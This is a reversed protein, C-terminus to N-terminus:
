SAAAETPGDTRPRKMWPLLRDLERALAERAAAADSLNGNKALSELRWAAEVAAPAGFTGVAGKLTHAALGLAKADSRALAADIASCLKPCEELFLGVLEDLLEQDGMARGLAISWDIPSPSDGATEAHPPASTATSEPPSDAAGTPLAAATLAAPSAPGGAAQEVAAFLENPHVPKSVYGDMGAELCRERDGKMAHATMAIIPLHLGTTQERRRIEATAQFGDMLPMQVDMLVVDFAQESTREVAERGNDALTVHHGRKELLRVAVTQNVPSDEALLVQLSRDPKEATTPARPPQPNAKWINEVIADFLESPKIPKILYTSIGVERCYSVEDLQCGSSLMMIAPGALLESQSIQRALSFGDTGPMQSDLLVLHFPHGAQVAEAMAALAEDASAVAKPRMRWSGLMELMILRNTANDDVVLVDLQDLRELSASPQTSQGDPGCAFQATFHFTSGEGPTSEVWIRGGMLEVLRATIALGLGTGGYKRTTSTDAQEFPEFIMRQKCPDIGIGTDRVSFHLVAHGNERSEPDVRLVVEGQPTFKIANGVLNLVVQRLRGADGLLRDPVDAHVLYALELRSKRARVGLSKMADGLSDRLAFERADLEMRGAEIKSFDLVDNIVSLLSDASERVMALYARQEPSLPTDLLLEAMGIIGNMPTRIEHSMNALFASKARNAAQAEEHARRLAAESRKMPTVDWSMGQTGVVQGDADLVPAKFTQIYIEGDSRVYREIDEFVLRTEIVREDDRHYKEALECPFFDADTRGVIEDLSRDLSRCLLRNAFTFRGELDKSWTTLPLSEVLSHYRAESQRLAEEAQKRDSVDTLVAVGGVIEGLDNRLPRANVSLWTPQPLDQRRVFIEMGDIAQGSIARVLPLEDRELPRTRDSAFLGYRASWKEPPSDIAGMGLIERAAPNFILFKGEADCVVVGDGMSNLISQLIRTQRRLEDESEALAQTRTAVRQELLGYSASLEQTMRNFATALLGVEDHSRVEVRTALAGRAVAEAAGALHVIPRAVRRALLYSAFLGLVLVGGELTWLARSLDAIPAYVEAKPVRAIVGWNEYGVPRYAALVPVQNRDKTEVFGEQGLTVSASAPAQEIDLGPRDPDLLNFIKDGERRVVVLAGSQGLGEPHILMGELPTADLLIMVVGVPHTGEVSLLPGSIWLRPRGDERHIWGVHKSALGLEFDRSGAFSTGVRAPENSVLVKGMPDAVNISLFGSGTELVDNLIAQLQQKIADDLQEHDAADQVLRRFRSRHAILGIREQQQRIYTLLATQRSSAVVSLREKIAQELTRSMFYYSTGTLTAATLAVTIGVFLSLRLVISHRVHFQGPSPSPLEPKATNRDSAV